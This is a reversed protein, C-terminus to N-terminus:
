KNQLKDNKRERLIRKTFELKFRYDFIRAKKIQFTREGKGDPFLGSISKNENSESSILDLQLLNDDAGIIEHLQETWRDRAEDSTWDRKWGQKKTFEVTIHILDNGQKDKMVTHDIVLHDEFNIRGFTQFLWHDIKLRLEM